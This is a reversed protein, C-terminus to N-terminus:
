KMESLKRLSAPQCQSLSLVIEIASSRTTEEFNKQLAIQSTVNLLQAEQGKWIESHTNTL